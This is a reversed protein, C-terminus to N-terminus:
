VDGREGDGLVVDALARALPPPIANGVQQYQKTKTGQWPHDAPFGQLIAAETVSVRVAKTLMSEPERDPHCDPTM